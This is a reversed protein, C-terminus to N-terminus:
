GLRSLHAPDLGYLLLLLVIICLLILINKFFLSNQKEFKGFTLYKHARRMNKWSNQIIDLQINVSYSVFGTNFYGIKKSVKRIKKLEFFNL